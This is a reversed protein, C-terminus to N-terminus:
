DWYNDYPDIPYDGDWDTWEDIWEDEDAPDPMHQSFNWLLVIGGLVVLGVIFLLGM